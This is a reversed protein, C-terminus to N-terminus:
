SSTGYLVVRSLVAGVSVVDHLLRHGAARLPLSDGAGLVADDVAFQFPFQLHFIENVVVRGIVPELGGAGATAGLVASETAHGIAAVTKLAGAGHAPIRQQKSPQVDFPIAQSVSPVRHTKM